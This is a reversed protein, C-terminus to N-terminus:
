NCKGSTLEKGKQISMDYIYLRYPRSPKPSDIRIPNLGQKDLKQVLEYNNTSFKDEIKSQELATEDLKKEPKPKKPYRDSRKMGM